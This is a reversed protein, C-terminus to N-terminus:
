RGALNFWKVVREADTMGGLLFVVIAAPVTLLAWVGSLGIIDGDVESIINISEVTVFPGVCFFLFVIGYIFGYPRFRRNSTANASPTQIARERIHACRRQIEEELSRSRNPDCSADVWYREKFLEVLTYISYDAPKASDTRSSQSTIKLANGMLAEASCPIYWYTRGASSVCSESLITFAFSFNVTIFEDITWFLARRLNEFMLKYMPGSQTVYSFLRLLKSWLTFAKTGAGHLYVGPRYRFVRLSRLPQRLKM